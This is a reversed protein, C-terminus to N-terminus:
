CKIAEVRFDRKVKKGHWQPDCEKADKFGARRLYPALADFTWGWKHCMLPDRLTNDGYMPWMAMQDGKGDLLNRAAKKIDPMEIVILGGPRLLRAWEKLVGDVEWEYFHELIHVSLLESACSDPLPVSSVDCMIEPARSANPHRVMDCNTWGELIHRGCALHIKM